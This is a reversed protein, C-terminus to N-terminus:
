CSAFSIDFSNGTHLPEAHQQSGPERLNRLFDRIVGCLVHVVVQGFNPCGRGAWFKDRLDKAERESGIPAFIPIHHQLIYM